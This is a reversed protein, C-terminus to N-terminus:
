LEVETRERRMDMFREVDGPAYVPVAGKMTAVFAGAYNAFEAMEELSVGELYKVVVGAVFADGCGTTDVPVIRVGPSVVRQNGDTLLCGREGLSLAVLRLDYEDILWELFPITGKEEQWFARRMQNMEDESLKLIDTRPLTERVIWGTMESWGRFNLDFVGVAGTAKELFEQITRRSVANRQALTGVVVADAKETLSALEEQWAIYDFAVDKSCTFRPVGGEGLRVGVTGTPRTSCRQVYTSVAGQAELTEIIEDGLGDQGVASVVIGEAGLRLAHLAVNAPAGGLRKGDPYVDWVVEGLGVVTRSSSM